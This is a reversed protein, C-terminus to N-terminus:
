GGQKERLDKHAKEAAEKKTDGVGRGKEGTKEDVATTEYWSQWPFGVKQAYEKHRSM